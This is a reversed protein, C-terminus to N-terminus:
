KVILQNSDTDCNFAYNKNREFRVTTSFDYEADKTDCLYDIEYRGPRIYFDTIVPIPYIIDDKGRPFVIRGNSLTIRRVFAERVNAQTQAVHVYSSNNSSITSAAPMVTCASIFLFLFTAVFIRM